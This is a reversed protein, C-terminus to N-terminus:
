RRSEKQREKRFDLMVTFWITAALLSAILILVALLYESFLLESIRDLSAISINSGGDAEVFYSRTHVYIQYGLYGSFLIPLIIGLVASAKRKKKVANKGVSRGENTSHDEGPSKMSIRLQAIIMYLIIFVFIAAFGTIFILIGSYLVFSIITTFIFMLFILVMKRRLGPLFLAIMGSLVLGAFSIYQIIEIIKQSEISM